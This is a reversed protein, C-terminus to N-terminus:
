IINSKVMEFFLEVPNQNAETKLNRTKRCSSVAADSWSLFHLVLFLILKNSTGKDNNPLYWRKKLILIRKGQKFGVAVQIKLHQLYNKKCGRM